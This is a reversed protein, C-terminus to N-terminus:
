AKFAFYLTGLVIGLGMIWLIVENWPLLPEWQMLDNQARKIRRKIVKKLNKKKAPQKKPASKKQRAM